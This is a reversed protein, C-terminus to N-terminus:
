GVILIVRDGDWKIRGPLVRNIMELPLYVQGDSFTRVPNALIEPTCDPLITFLLIPSDTKFAFTGTWATLYGVGSETSLVCELPLISELESLPLYPHGEVLQPSHEWVTLRDKLIVGILDPKEPATMAVSIMEGTNLIFLLEENRLLTFLRSRGFTTSRALEKPSGNNWFYSFVQSSSNSILAFSGPFDTSQFIRGCLTPTEFPAIKQQVGGEICTFAYFMRRASIALIDDAGDGDIDCVVFDLIGGWPLNEWMKKLVGKQWSYIVFGNRTKDVTLLEEPGSGDLQITAFTKIDPFAKAGRWIADISTGSFRFLTADGDSAVSFIEKLGDGETDIIIIHEVPKWTHRSVAVPVPRNDWRYIALYGLDDTGLIIEISGDADLDASNISVFNKGELFITAQLEFHRNFAKYIKASGESVSIVESLGDLDLDVFHLGVESQPLGEWLVQKGFLPISPEVSPQAAPQQKGQLAQPTTSTTASTQAAVNAPAVRLAILAAILIMLYLFLRQKKRVLKM